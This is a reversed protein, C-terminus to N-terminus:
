NGLFAFKPPWRQRRRFCQGLRLDQASQLLNEDLIVRYKGEISVLRGTRAGSFWGWLMISGGGHKVTSITGPKRWVNGDPWEVMFAQNTSHQLSPQGEPLNDWRWLLFRSSDSHGYPEQDGEGSGHRSVIRDWLEVSLEKSRMAKNKSQCAGTSQPVKYLCTHAKGFWTWDISNVMPRSSDLQLFTELIILPFLICM